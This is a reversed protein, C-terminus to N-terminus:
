AGGMGVEKGFGVSNSDGGGGQERSGQAYTELTTGM